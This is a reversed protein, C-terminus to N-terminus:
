MRQVEDCLMRRIKDNMTEKNTKSYHIKARYTTKGIKKVLMPQTKQSNLNNPSGSSNQRSAKSHM